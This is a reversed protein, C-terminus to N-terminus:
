AARNWSYRIPVVRRADQRDRAAGGPARPKMRPPRWSRDSVMRRVDRWHAELNRRAERCLRSFRPARRRTAPSGPHHPRALRLVPLRSSRAVDRCAPRWWGPSARACPHGDRDAPRCGGASTSASSPCRCAAWRRSLPIGGRASWGSRGKRGMVQGGPRPTHRVGEGRRALGLRGGGGRVQMVTNGCRVLRGGVDTSGQDSIPSARVSRRKDVGRGAVPGRAHGGHSSGETGRAGVGVAVIPPRAGGHPRARCRARSSPGQGM